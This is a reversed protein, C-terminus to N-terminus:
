PLMESRVKAAVVERWRALLRPPCDRFEVGVAYLSTGSPKVWAARGILKFAVLPNLFAVRLALVSGEPLPVKVQLRLGSISLDATCCFFTSNEIERAAPAALITVSVQNQEEVRNHQRREVM